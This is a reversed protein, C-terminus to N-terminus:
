DHRATSPIGTAACLSKSIPSGRFLEALVRADLTDTKARASWIARLRYPHALVVEGYELLLGYLWRYTSIVESAARFLGKKRIFEVIAVPHQDGFRRPPVWRGADSVLAIVTTWSGMDVGAYWMGSRREELGPGM